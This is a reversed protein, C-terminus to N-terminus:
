PGKIEFLGSEANLEPIKRVGFQACDTDFKIERAGDSLTILASAKNGECRATVGAIIRASATAIPLGDVSSLKYRAPISRCRANDGVEITTELGLFDAGDCDARLMPAIAWFWGREGEIQARTANRLTVGKRQEFARVAESLTAISNVAVELQKNAPRNPMASKDADGPRWERALARLLPRAGREPGERQLATLALATLGCAYPDRRDAERQNQEPLQIFCRAIAENVKRLSGELTSRGLSLQTLLAFLEASGEGVLRPLGAPQLVHGLEHAIFSQARETAEASLTDSPKYFTLRIARPDAVDGHQMTRTSYQNDADNRNAVLHIHESLAGYESRMWARTTADARKVEDRLWSPLREDILHQDSRLTAANAKTTFVVYASDIKDQAITLASESADPSGLVQVSGGPAPQLTVITPACNTGMLLYAPYFLQSHTGVSQSQTYHSQFPESDNPVFFSANRCPGSDAVLDGGRPSLCGETRQWQARFFRAVTARSDLFPASICVQPMRYAVHVGNTAPSITIEITPQAFTNQTFILLAAACCLVNTTKFRFFTM